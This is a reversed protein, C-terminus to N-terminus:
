RSYFEIIMNLDFMNESQIFLPLSQIKAIKKVQDLHIWSPISRDKIKEELGTFLGNLASGDRIAVIDGVSVRCSPSTVKRGNVTIHGHSVIQRSGSRTNSFGIRYVVNDLRRELFEFITNTSNSQKKLLAEKVYNSFQKERLGYTLRAKQKENLQIGFESKPKSFGKKKSKRELFILTNYLAM